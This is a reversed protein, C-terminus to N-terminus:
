VQLTQQTFTATHGPASPHLIERMLQAHQRRKPDRDELQAALKKPMKMLALELYRVTEGRQRAGFFKPRACTPSWKEEIWGRHALRGLDRMSAWFYKMDPDEHELRLPDYDGDTPALDADHRMRAQRQVRADALHEGVRETEIV